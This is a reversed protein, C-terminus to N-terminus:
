LGGQISFSSIVLVLVNIWGWAFPIWPSMSFFGANYVAGLMLGVVSGAVIGQVGAVFLYLVPVVWIFKWATKNQAHMAIAIGACALHFLAYIILTWLLTFRWIDGIYFLSREKRATPDLIEWTLSPFPPTTYGRPPSHHLM